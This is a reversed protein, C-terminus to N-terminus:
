QLHLVETQLQQSFAKRTMQVSSVTGPFSLEEVYNFPFGWNAGQAPRQVM